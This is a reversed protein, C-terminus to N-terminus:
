KWNEGIVKKEMDKLNNNGNYNFLIIAIQIFKLFLPESTDAELQSHLKKCAMEDKKVDDDKHQNRLYWKLNQLGIM